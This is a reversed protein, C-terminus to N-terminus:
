IAAARTRTEAQAGEGVQEEIGAEPESVPNSTDLNLARLPADPGGLWESAQEM